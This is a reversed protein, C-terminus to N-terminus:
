PDGLAWPDGLALPDGLAWTGLPGGQSGMAGGWPIGQTGGMPDWPGGGWFVDWFTIKYPSKM